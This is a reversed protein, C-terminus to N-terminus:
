ISSFFNSISDYFMSVADNEDDWGYKPAIEDDLWKLAENADKLKDIHSIAKNYAATDNDFLESIYQYKDNIGIHSKISERAPELSSLIPNVPIEETINTQTHEVMEVTEEKEEPKNEEIPTNAEPQQEQTPTGSPNHVKRKRLESLDAYLVKTYDLMLDVEILDAQDGKRSLEAIKNLLIQIRQM